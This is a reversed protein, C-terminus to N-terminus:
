IVFILYVADTSIYDVEFSFHKINGALQKERHWLFSGVLEAM